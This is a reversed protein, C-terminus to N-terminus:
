YGRLKEFEKFSKAGVNKMFRFDKLRITTIPLDLCTYFWPKDGYESRRVIEASFANSLRSSMRAANLVYWEQLTEIHEAKPNLLMTLEQREEISLAELFKELNM